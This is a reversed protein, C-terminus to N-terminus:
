LSSVAPTSQEARNSMATFVLTSSSRSQTSLSIASLYYLLPKGFRDRPQYDIIRLAISLAAIATQHNTVHKCAMVSSNIVQKLYSSFSDALRECALARDRDVEAPIITVCKGHTHTHTHRM